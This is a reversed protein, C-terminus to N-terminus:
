ELPFFTDLFRVIVRGLLHGAARGLGHLPSTCTQTVLM